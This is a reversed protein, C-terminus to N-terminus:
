DKNKNRTKHEALMTELQEIEENNLKENDLLQAVMKHPNGAFMRKLFGKLMPTSLSERKIAAAYYITRGQMSERSVAKKQELRDIITKVTSYSVDKELKIKDHVQSASLQGKQWLINMVDLEFESLKITNQM